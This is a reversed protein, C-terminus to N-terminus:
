KLNFELTSYFSLLMISVIVNSLGIQFTALRAQNTYGNIPELHQLM